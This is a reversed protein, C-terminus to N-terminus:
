NILAKRGPLIGHFQIKVIGQFGKRRRKREMENLSEVFAFREQDKKINKFLRRQMTM